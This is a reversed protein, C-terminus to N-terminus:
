YGLSENPWSGSFIRLAEGLTLNWPWWRVTRSAEAQDFDRPFDVSFSTPKTRSDEIPNVKRLPFDVWRFGALNEWSSWKPNEQKMTGKSWDISSEERKPQSFYDGFIHLTTYLGRYADVLLPTSCQGLPGTAHRVSILPISLININWSTQRYRQYNFM